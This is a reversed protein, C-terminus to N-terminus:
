SSTAQDSRFKLQIGQFREFLYKLPLILFLTTGLMEMFEETIKSFHLITYETANFTEQLWLQVVEIKELFDLGQSVVYLSLAALLMIRSNMVRLERWLFIFIALGICFFIPMFVVHWYYTPFNGLFAFLPEATDASSGDVATKKFVTGIREHFKSGDDISVYIFFFGFFLWFFKKWAPEGLAKQSLGVSIFALGVFFAQLCSFWTGVSDERTLNLMGRISSQDILRGYTIFSDLLYLLIEFAVLGIFLLKLTRSTDLEVDLNPKSM